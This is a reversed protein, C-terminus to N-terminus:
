LSEELLERVKSRAQIKARRIEDQKQKDAQDRARKRAKEALDAVFLERSDRYLKQAIGSLHKHLKPDNAPILQAKQRGAGGSGIAAANEIRQFQCIQSILLRDIPSEASPDSQGSAMANRLELVAFLDVVGPSQAGGQSAMSEVAREFFDSFAANEVFPNGCGEPLFKMELGPALQARLPKAGFFTLTAGLFWKILNSSM